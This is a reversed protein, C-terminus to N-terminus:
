AQFRLIFNQGKKGMRLRTKGRDPSTFRRSPGFDFFHGSKKKKANEDERKPMLVATQVSDERSRLYVYEFGEQSPTDM